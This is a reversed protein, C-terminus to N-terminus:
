HGLIYTYQMNDYQGIVISKFESVIYMCCLLLTDLLHGIVISEFESVIYM